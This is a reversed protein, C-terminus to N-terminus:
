ETDPDSKQKSNLRARFLARITEEFALATTVGFWFEITSLASLLQAPMM